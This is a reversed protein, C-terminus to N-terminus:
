LCETARRATKMVEEHTMGAVLGSSLEADRQVAEKVASAEDTDPLGADISDWLTQALTVRDPLPLALAADTLPTSKGSM